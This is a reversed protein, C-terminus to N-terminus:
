PYGQEALPTVIAEDVVLEPPVVRAALGHRLAEEASLMRGTLVMDM